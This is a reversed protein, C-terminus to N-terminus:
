YLSINDNTNDVEDIAKYISELLNFHNAVKLINDLTTNKGNEINQITARSMGLAEALEDRSLEYDKRKKMFVQGIKLKVERITISDLM